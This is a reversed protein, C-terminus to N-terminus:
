GSYDVGVCYDHITAPDDPINSDFFSTIGGPAFVSTIEKYHLTAGLTGCGVAYWGNELTELTTPNQSKKLYDECIYSYGLEIGTGVVFVLASRLLGKLVPWVSSDMKWQASDIYLCMENGYEQDCVYTPLGNNLKELCSLYKCRLQREKQKNYQIAPLCLHDYHVSRYPNVIWDNAELDSYFRTNRDIYQQASIDVSAPLIIDNGTFARGTILNDAVNRMTDSTDTNISNPTDVVIYDYNNGPALVVNSVVTYLTNRDFPNDPIVRVEHVKYNTM